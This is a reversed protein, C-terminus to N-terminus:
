VHLNKDTKRIAANSVVIDNLAVVGNEKHILPDAEGQKGQFFFLFIIEIKVLLNAPAFAAQDLILGLRLIFFFSFLVLNLYRM